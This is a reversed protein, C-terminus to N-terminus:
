YDDSELIEEIVRKIISYNFGRYTLASGIKRKITEKDKNSISKYKKQAFHMANEFEEDDDIDSISNQIIESDIGKQRLQSAIMRKSYKKRKYSGEVLKEAIDEEDIFKYEDVFSMAYDIAEQSFKKQKLKLILEKKTKSSSALIKFAQQKALKNQNDILMQEFEEDDIEDRSYLKYEYLIDLHLEIKEEKYDKIYLNFNSNRKKTIKLIEYM